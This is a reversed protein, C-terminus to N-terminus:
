SIAHLSLRPRSPEPDVIYDEFAEKVGFKKEHHTKLNSPVSSRIWTTRNCIIVDSAISSTVAEHIFVNGTVDIGSKGLISKIM